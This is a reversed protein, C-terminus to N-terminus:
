FMPHGRVHGKFPGGRGRFPKLSWYYPHSGRWQKPSVKKKKFVNIPTKKKMPPLATKRRVVEGKKLIQEALEAGLLDPSTVNPYDQPKVSMHGFKFLKLLNETQLETLWRHTQGANLISQHCSIITSQLREILQEKTLTDLEGSLEDFEYKQIALVVPHVIEAVKSQAKCLIREPEGLQKDLDDHSSIVKKGVLLQIFADDIKPTDIEYMDPSGTISQLYQRHTELMPVKFAYPLFRFCELEKGEYTQPSWRKDKTPMNGELPVNAWKLLQASHKARLEALTPTSTSILIDKPDSVNESAGFQGILPMIGGTRHSYPLKLCLTKYKQSLEVRLINGQIVPPKAKFFRVMAQADASNRMEVFGEGKGKILVVKNIKGFLEALHILYAHTCKGPVLDGVFVVHGPEEESNSEVSGQQLDVESCVSGQQLDVESSVSGQQLDVESGSSVETGQGDGCQMKEPDDQDDDSEYKEMLGELESDSELFPIPTEERLKESKIEVVNNVEPKEM